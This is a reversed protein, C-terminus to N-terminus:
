RLGVEMSRRKGHGQMMWELWKQHLSRGQLVLRFDRAGGFNGGGSDKPERPTGTGMTVGCFIGYRHIRVTDYKEKPDM